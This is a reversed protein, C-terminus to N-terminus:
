SAAHHVIAVSWAGVLPLGILAAAIHVARRAPADRPADGSLAADVIAPV